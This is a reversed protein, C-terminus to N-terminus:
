GGRSRRFSEFDDYAKRKVAKRVRGSSTKELAPLAPGESDADATEVEAMSLARPDFRIQHSMFRAHLGRKDVAKLCAEEPAVDGDLVLQLLSDNLAIMGHKRGTQISSQMAHTKGERIMNAIASTAVLVEFAPTRGEGDSRRLLTQAIVGRLTNALMTRIQSQRGEPFQDVIRDITTPATQTHLTAFVLHGTEATELAMEITELDRIEGVLVVDPDERLAARLAPKFGDTHVHVERQNVLCRLSMHVFEIPDEVTIIHERRTRNIHDLMAALTTSKGSGTPGTVVVLGKSLQCFDLAAAPLGLEGVSLIENPILRLVTGVGHRDRFVNVRLRCLGDISYGFDTDNCEAFEKLTHPPMIETVLEEIRASSFTGEERLRVIRGHVRLIAPHTGTLHLDSAGRAHATRLLADIAAM